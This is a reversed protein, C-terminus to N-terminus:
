AKYLTTASTNRRSVWMKGLYSDPIICISFYIFISLENVLYGENYFHLM